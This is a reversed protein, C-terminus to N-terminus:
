EAPVSMDCNQCGGIDLCHGRNSGTDYIGPVYAELYVDSYYLVGDNYDVIGTSM